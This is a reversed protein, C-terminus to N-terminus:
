EHKDPFKRKKEIQSMEYKKRKFCFIEVINKFKIEENEPSPVKVPVKIM